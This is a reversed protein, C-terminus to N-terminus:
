VGACLWDPGDVALSRHFSVLSRPDLILPEMQALLTGDLSQRTDLCYLFWLWGDAALLAARLASQHM